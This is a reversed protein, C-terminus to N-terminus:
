DQSEMLLLLNESFDDYDKSQSLIGINKEESLINIFNELIDGFIHSDEKNVAILVIISVYKEDWQVPEEQILISIGTRIANRKMSHPMAVGHNFVTSSMHEREKVELTFSKNTYGKEVLNDSLFDIIEYKDDVSINRFFLEPRFFKKLYRSMNEMKQERKILGIKERINKIDQDTIFPHVVIIHNTKESTIMTTSIILDAQIQEIHQNLETVLMTISLSDNFNEELKNLIDKHIDYYQPCIVVCKIRNNSSKSDIYSGIHLAIYSIEDDNIKIGAKEAIMSSIFVSIDYILPYSTKIEEGLPNRSLDSFNARNILNHIHIILKIVFEKDYMEIFYTKEVQELISKVMTIVPEGVYDKLEELTLTNYNSLTTKGIIPLTLNYIEDNSFNIGYDKEIIGTIEKTIEYESTKEVSQNRPNDQIINNEYIRQITVAFHLLINEMVYNNIIFNHKLLTDTIIKQLDNIDIEKLIAQISRRLNVPNKSEEFVLFRMAKRKDPEEGEITFNDGKVSVKLDFKNLFKRIEKIDNRITEESVFLEESLDYVNLKIKMKILKNIIYNVRDKKTAPLYNNKNKGELAKQYAIINLKYGHKSSIIVNSDLKNNWEAVCKRITRDTVQLNQAIVSATQWNSQHLLYNILRESTKEKM